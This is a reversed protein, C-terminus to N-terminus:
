CGKLRFIQSGEFVFGRSHTTPARFGRGRRGVPFGADDNGWVDRKGRETLACIKGGVVRSGRWM